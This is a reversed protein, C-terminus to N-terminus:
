LEKLVDNATVCPFYLNFLVCTVLQERYCSVTNGAEHSAQSFSLPFSFFFSLIQIRGHSYQATSPFTKIVFFALLSQTVVFLEVTMVDVSVTIIVISIIISISGQYFFM